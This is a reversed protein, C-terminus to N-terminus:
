FCITFMVMSLYLCNNCRYLNSFPTLSCGNFGELRPRGVIAYYENLDSLYQRLQDPSRFVVPRKPPALFDEGNGAVVLMVACMVALMQILVNKM